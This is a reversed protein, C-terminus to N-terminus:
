DNIYNYHARSVKSQAQALLSEFHAHVKRQGSGPELAVIEHVDEGSGGFKGLPLTHHRIVRM